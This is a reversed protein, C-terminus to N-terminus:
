ATDAPEGAVGPETIASTSADKVLYGREAGTAYRSKKVPLQESRYVPHREVSHCAVTYGEDTPFPNSRAGSLAKAQRFAILVEAASATTAQIGPVPLCRLVLACFAAVPGFGLLVDQRSLGHTGDGALWRLHSKIGGPAM